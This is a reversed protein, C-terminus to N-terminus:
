IRLTYTHTTLIYSHAIHCSQFWTVWLNKVDCMAHILCTVSFSAQWMYILREVCSHSMDCTFTSHCAFLHAIDCMFTANWLCSDTMDYTFWILSTQHATVTTPSKSILNMTPRKLSTGEMDAGFFLLSLHICPRRCICSNLSSCIFQNQDWAVIKHTHTHTRPIHPNQDQAVINKSTHTYPTHTRTHAHSHSFVFILLSTHIPDNMHRPHTWTVSLHTMDCMFSDHWDHILRTVNSPTMDCILSDDRFFFICPHTCIRSNSCFFLFENQDREM